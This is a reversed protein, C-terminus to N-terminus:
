LKRDEVAKRLLFEIMNSLSRGDEEAMIRLKELLEADISINQNTKM